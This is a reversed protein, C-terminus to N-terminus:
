SAWLTTQELEHKLQKPLKTSLLSELQQDRQHANWNLRTQM